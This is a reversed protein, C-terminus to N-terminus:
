YRPDGQWLNGMWLDYMKHLFIGAGGTKAFTLEGFYINGKVNYFDARVYTFPEALKKAYELMLNYNEPKEITRRINPLEITLPIWELDDNFYSINHNWGSDFHVELIVIYGGNNQKFVHFKYDRIDSEGPQPDLRKEVLVGRKIDSYWPENQLKGFDVKLQELTSDVASKIEADTSETTLLHVPGSNHNAKLLCDGHEAIIAKMQEFTISEGIYYNPIIIDSSIQEAVYEKAKIKDACISFLPNQPNNKRFNIKENYTKPNKFNPIYRNNKVFSLWFWWRRLLASNRYLIRLIQKM